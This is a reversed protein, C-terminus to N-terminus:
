RLLEVRTRNPYAAKYREIVARAREAVRELVSISMFGDKWFQTVYDLQERQLMGFLSEEEEYPGYPDIRAVTSLVAGAKATDLPTQEQRRLGFKPSPETPNYYWLPLSDFILWSGVVEVRATREPANADSVDRVRIIHTAPDLTGVYLHKGEWGEHWTSIADIRVSRDACIAVTLLYRRAEGVYVTPHLDPLQCVSLPLPSKPARSAVRSTCATVLSLLVSALVLGIRPMATPNLAINSIMSPRSKTNRSAAQM